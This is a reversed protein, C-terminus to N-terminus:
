AATTLPLEDWHTVYYSHASTANKTRTEPLALPAQNARHASLDTVM